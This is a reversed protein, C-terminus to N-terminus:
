ECFAMRQCLAMLRNFMAISGVVIFGVAVFYSLAIAVRNGFLKKVM